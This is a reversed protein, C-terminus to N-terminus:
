SSTFDAQNITKLSDRVDSAKPRNKPEYSWCRELLGWLEDGKPSQPIQELPRAPHLQRVLVAHIVAMDPRDKHPINGTLAELITMGLAYVDTEFNAAGDDLFLEPAAWRVSYHLSDTATFAVPFERKMTACGFDTIKATGDKSIVINDGKIDGHAIGLNHMYALGDAVQMCLNCRDATPNAGIYALLSGYEVWPAVMALRDRVVALGVLELVNPHASMSWTYLEHATHKLVKDPQNESNRFERLCKVAVPTGDLLQAQYVDSMKGSWRSHERLGTLQPTVDACGHEVLREIITPLPLTHEIIMTRTPENVQDITTGERNVVNLIDRVVVASPRDDPNRQWCSLLLGWIIRKFGPKISILSSPQDPIRGNGIIAIARLESVGQYPVDNTFLELIVMGLSWIDSKKTPWTSEKYFREPAAWRPAFHFTKEQNHTDQEFVSSGFSTIQIVGENSVMMSRSRLDGHIVGMDHLYMVAEAVQIGLHCRNINDKSKMWRRLSFNVWPFVVGIDLLRKIGDQEEAERPETLVFGLFPIVNPQKLRSLIRVENVIPEIGHHNSYKVSVPGDYGALRGMYIDYFGGAIVIDGDSSWSLKSSVDPCGHKTLRAVANQWDFQGIVTAPDMEM